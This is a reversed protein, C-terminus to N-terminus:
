GEIANEILEIRKLKQDQDLEVAVLDLRWNEPSKPHNQLYHYAGNELHQMKTFTVSEEPTGFSLSSKTRVEIFVLCDKQLAIIDIEGRPYRYNTELIRYGKKKLFDRALKEGLAGTEKRGM